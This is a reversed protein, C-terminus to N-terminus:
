PKSDKLGFRRLVDSIKSRVQGAGSRAAELIDDEALRQFIRRREAADPVSDQVFQRAEALAALWEAWAPGFQEELDRRVKAAVAPGAGGTSVAIVLPGQRMVAPLIFDCRAPDDVVNCWVRRAACEAAVRANLEPDDTAAIVLAAGDLDASEYPRLAVDVNKMRLLDGCAQPAVVRVAAGAASLAEAKRLAVEGGGVVLCTRGSLKLFIPYWTEPM